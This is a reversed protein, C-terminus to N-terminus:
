ILKPSVALLNYGAKVYLYNHTDLLAKCATQETKPLNVIELHIILPQYRDFDLQKLIHYDHGEADLQLVDVRTVQHQALLTPLTMAPVVEPTVFPKVEEFMLANRNTYLSAAGLGWRPVDLNDVHHTAIRHMTVMGDSDGIAVNALAIHPSTKHTEKLRDFHEKIPEVLLGAWQFKQIFEFIPDSTVGDMAGVQVVFVDSGRQAHLKEM